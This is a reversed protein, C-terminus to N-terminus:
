NYVAQLFPFHNLMAEENKVEPVKEIANQKPEANVKDKRTLETFMIVPLAALLIIFRLTFKLKEM